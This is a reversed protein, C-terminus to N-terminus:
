APWTAIPSFLFFFFQPILLGTGGGRGELRPLEGAASTLLPSNVRIQSRGQYAVL